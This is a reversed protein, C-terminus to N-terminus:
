SRPKPMTLEVMGMGTQTCYSVTRQQSVICDFFRLEKVVRNISSAVSSVLDQYLEANRALHKEIEQDTTEATWRRHQLDALINQAESSSIGTTVLLVEIENEFVCQQVRLKDHIRKVEKAYHRFIRFKQHVIKWARLTAVLVPVAGLVVGAVEM